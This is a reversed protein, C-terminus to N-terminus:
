YATCLDVGPIRVLLAQAVLASRAFNVAVGGPWGWVDEKKAQPLNARLQRRHWDEEEKHTPRRWLMASSHLLDVGPIQVQLGLGGVFQLTRFKLWETM